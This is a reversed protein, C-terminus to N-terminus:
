RARARVVVSYERHEAAASVWICVSKERARLRALIGGDDREQM